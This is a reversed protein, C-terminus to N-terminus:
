GYEELFQLIFFWLCCLGHNINVFSYHTYIGRFPSGRATCAINFDVAILTNENLM